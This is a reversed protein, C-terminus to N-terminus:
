CPQLQTLVRAIRRFGDIDFRGWGSEAMRALDGSSRLREITSGLQVAEVKSRIPQGVGRRLILERNGPAFSGLSPDVVFMPLGLGLAWSAREHAASVVYDCQTFIEATLENLERRNSYLCLVADHNRDRMAEVTRVHELHVGAQSFKAVLRAGFSGAETAFVFVRGGRRVTSLAAEVLKTVHLRPEAGTSFFAGCLPAKGSLRALRAHFAAEAQTVLGREICLGSVVVHTSAIGAALFADATHATPVFVTHEGRVLSERPAAIEGHQYFVAPRDRLASVLLPHAVVLPTEDSLFRQRLGGALVRNVAGWRNYDANARLRSYLSATVGSSGATHYLYRALRWVGLSVGSALAFVDAVQGVYQPELCEIIGDLYHPHGRGINTYLFNVRTGGDRGAAADPNIGVRYM